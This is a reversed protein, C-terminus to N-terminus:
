RRDKITIVAVTIANAGGTVVITIAGIAVITVAGMMIVVVM